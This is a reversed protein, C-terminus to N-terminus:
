RPLRKFRYDIRKKDLYKKLDDQTDFKEKYYEGTSHTTCIDLSYKRCIVPRDEYVTCIKSNEDLAECPNKIEINWSNDHDIFLSIDEHLLYWFFDSYDKKCAPKDVEIAVYKCCDCCDDCNLMKEKTM